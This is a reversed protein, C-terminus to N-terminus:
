KTIESKVSQVALVFGLAAKALKLNLAFDKSHIMDKYTTPDTIHMFSHAEKESKILLAFQDAQPTLIHAAMGISQMAMKFEDTVKDAYKNM